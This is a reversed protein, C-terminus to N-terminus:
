EEAHYDVGTARNRLIPVSPHWRDDALLQWTSPSRGRSVSASASKPSGSRGHPNGAQAADRDELDSADAHCRSVSGSRGHHHLPVSPKVWVIHRDGMRRGVGSSGRNGKAPSRIPLPGRLTGRSARAVRSRPSARLVQATPHGCTGRFGEHSPLGRRAPGAHLSRRWRADGRVRRSWGRGTAMAYQELYVKWMSARARRRGNAHAEHNAM